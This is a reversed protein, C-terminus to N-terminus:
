PHVSVKFQAPKSKQASFDLLITMILPLDILVVGRETDFGFFEVSTEDQISEMRELGIFNGPKIISPEM